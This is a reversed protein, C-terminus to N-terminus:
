FWVSIGVTSKNPIIQSLAHMLKFKLHSERGVSTEDVVWWHNAVWLKFVAPIFSKLSSFFIHPLVSLRSFTSAFHSTAKEIIM